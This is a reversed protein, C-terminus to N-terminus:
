QANFRDAGVFRVDHGLHFHLILNIQNAIGDAMLQNGILKIAKACALKPSFFESAQRFIRINLNMERQYEFRRQSLLISGLSSHVDVFPGGFSYGDSIKQTLRETM